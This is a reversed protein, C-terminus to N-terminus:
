INLSHHFMNALKDSTLLKLSKSIYNVLENDSHPEKSRVYKKSVNFSQEVPNTDPNYAVNYIIKNMSKEVLEKINKSHHFRVNDMLLCGNTIKNLIKNELFNYFIKNNASGNVIDYGIVKRKTIGLLLTKTCRKTSKITKNIKKGKKSWGYKHTMNINYNSEDISVIKEPDENKIDKLMKKIEANQRNKNIPVIKTNIKKYSINNTCLIKYIASKKIIIGFIKMIRNKLTNIIFNIKNTAYLTVFIEIEKTYKSKYKTRNNNIQELKNNKFANVWNYLTSCSINFINIVNQITFMESNYFNIVSLKFNYDYIKPM